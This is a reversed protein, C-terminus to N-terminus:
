TQRFHPISILFHTSSSKLIKFEANTNPELLSEDDNIIPKEYANMVTGELNRKKNCHLSAIASSNFGFLVIRQGIPLINPKTAYFIFLFEYIIAILFPYRSSSQSSHLYIAKIFCFACNNESVQNYSRFEYFLVRSGATLEIDNGIWM